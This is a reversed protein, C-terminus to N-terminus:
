KFVDLKQDVCRSEDGRPRASLLPKYIGRTLRRCPNAAENFVWPTTYVSWIYYLKALQLGHKKGNQQLNKKVNFDKHRQTQNTREENKQKSRKYCVHHCPGLRKAPLAYSIQQVGAQHQNYYTTV